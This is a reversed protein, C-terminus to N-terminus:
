SRKKRVPLLERAWQPRNEWDRFVCADNDPDLFGERAVAARLMAYGLLRTEAFNDGSALAHLLGAVQCSDHSVHFTLFQHPLLIGVGISHHVGLIRLWEETKHAQARLAEYARVAEQEMTLTGADSQKEVSTDLPLSESAAPWFSPTSLDRSYDKALPQSFEVRCQCATLTPIAWTLAPALAGLEWQVTSGADLISARPIM